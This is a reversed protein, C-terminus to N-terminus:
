ATPDFLLYLLNGNVALVVGICSLIVGVVQPKTINIGHLFYDIAMVFLPGAFYITNVLNISLYFFSQAYVFGFFVLLCHRQIMNTM